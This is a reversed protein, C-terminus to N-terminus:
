FMLLVNVESQTGRSGRTVHTHLHRRTRAWARGQDAWDAGTDQDPLRLRHQHQYQEDHGHQVPEHEALRERGPVPTFMNKKYISILNDPNIVQIHQSKRSCNYM